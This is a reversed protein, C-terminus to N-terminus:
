SERKTKCHKQNAYFYPSKGDLKAQIASCLEQCQLHGSASSDVKQIMAVPIYILQLRIRINPYHGGLPVSSLIISKTIVVKWEFPM